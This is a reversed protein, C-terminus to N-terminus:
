VMGISNFDQEFEERLYNNELAYAIQSFTFGRGQLFRAQKQRQQYDVEKLGFKRKRLLLALDDWAYVSAFEMGISNIGKVKLEARIKEPGIAKNYRARVYAEIFREESM